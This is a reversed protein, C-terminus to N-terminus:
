TCLIYLCGSGQGASHSSVAYGLRMEGVTLMSLFSNATEVRRAVKQKDDAWVDVLVVRLATTQAITAAVEEDFNFVMLSSQITVYVRPPFHVFLKHDTLLFLHWTEVKVARQVARVTRQSVRAM